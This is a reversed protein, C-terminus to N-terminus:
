TTEEAADAAPTLHDLPEKGQITMALRQIRSLLNMAEESYTEILVARKRARGLDAELANLLEAAGHYNMAHRDPEDLRTKQLYPVEPFPPRIVKWETWRPRQADSPHDTPNTM